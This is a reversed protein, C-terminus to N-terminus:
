CLQNQWVDRYSDPGVRRVVLLTLIQEVFADGFFWLSQRYKKPSFEPEFL